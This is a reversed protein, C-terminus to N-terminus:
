APQSRSARCYSKRAVGHSVRSFSVSCYGTTSHRCGRADNLVISPVANVSLVFAGRRIMCRKSPKYPPSQADGQRTVAGSSALPMVPRCHSGPPTRRSSIHKYRPSVCARTLWQRFTIPRGKVHASATSASPVRQAMRSTSM